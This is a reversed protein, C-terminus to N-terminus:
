VKRGPLLELKLFVGAARKAAVKNAGEQLQTVAFQCDTQGIAGEQLPEAAQALHVLDRHGAFAGQLAVFGPQRFFLHARENLLQEAM